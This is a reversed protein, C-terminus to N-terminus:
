RENLAAGFDLRTEILAAIPSLLGDDLSHSDVRRLASEERGNSREDSVTQIERTTPVLAPKGNHGDSLSHFGDTTQVSLSETAQPDDNTKADFKTM